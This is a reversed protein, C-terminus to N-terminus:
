DPGGARWSLVVVRVIVAALAGNALALIPHVSFIAYATWGNLAALVLLVVRLLKHHEEFWKNM